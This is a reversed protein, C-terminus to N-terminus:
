HDRETRGHFNIQLPGLLHSQIKQVLTQFLKKSPKLPIIPVGPYSFHPEGVKLKLSVQVQRLIDIPVCDIRCIVKPKSYNIKLETAKLFCFLAESLNRVETSHARGSVITDDVFLLHILSTGKSAFRFGEILRKAQLDRTKWSLANVSLIYIYPSQPCGQKVENQPTIIDLLHGNLIVRISPTYVLHLIQNVLFVSFGMQILLKQIFDSRISDFVKETDLKALFFQLCSGTLWDLRGFCNLKPRFRNSVSRGLM